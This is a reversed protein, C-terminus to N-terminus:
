NLCTNKQDASVGNKTCLNDCTIANTVLKLCDAKCTGQTKNPLSDCASLCRPIINDIHSAQTRNDATSTNLSKALVVAAGIALVFFGLLLLTKLVPFRPTKKM